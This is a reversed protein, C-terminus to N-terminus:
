KTKYILSYAGTETYNDASYVNKGKENKRFTGYVVGRGQHGIGHVTVCRWNFEYGHAEAYEKMAKYYNKGREFRNGGEALSVPDSPVSAGSTATDIDGNHVVMNRALYAKIHREDDFPTGKVTYPWRTPETYGNVSGDDSIWSWHGPNSAVARRVRADPKAILYRHVFQGGASHGQIDYRKARNGTEKKLFEFMPEVASYIWEEEPNLEECKRTKFVNGFQYQNEDYLDRRFQPSLVIFGEKEAFERWCIIPNLGSREAGHFSILVPMRRVNGKTPIYYYLTIPKDALPQYVFVISDEGRHFKGLSRAQLGGFCCLLIASILLFRKM